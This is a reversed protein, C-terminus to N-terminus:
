QLTGSANIFNQPFIILDDDGQFRHCPLARFDSSVEGLDSSDDVVNFQLILDTDTQIGTVNMIGTIIESVKVTDQLFKVLDDTQVSQSHHVDIVGLIDSTSMLVSVGVDTISLDAKFRQVSDNMM